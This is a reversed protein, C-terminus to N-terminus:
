NKTISFYQTHAVVYCVTFYVTIVAGSLYQLVYLFILLLNWDYLWFIVSIPLDFGYYVEVLLFFAM